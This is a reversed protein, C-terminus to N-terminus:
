MFDMLTMSKNSQKTVCKIKTKNIVLDLNNKLAKFDATLFTEYNIELIQKKTPSKENLIAEKAYKNFSDFIKITQCCSPYRCLLDVVNNGELLLKINEKKELLINFVSFDCNKTEISPTFSLLFMLENEYTSNNFQRAHSVSKLLDEM